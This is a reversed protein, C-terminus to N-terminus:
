QSYCRLDNLLLADLHPAHKVKLTFSLGVRGKTAEGKSGRKLYPM